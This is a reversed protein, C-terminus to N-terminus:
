SGAVPSTVISVRYAAVSPNSAPAPVVVRDCIPARM